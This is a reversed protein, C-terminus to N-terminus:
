SCDSPTEHFNLQKGLGIVKAKRSLAWTIGLSLPNQRQQHASIIAHLENVVGEYNTIVVAIQQRDLLFLRLREILFTLIVGLTAQM